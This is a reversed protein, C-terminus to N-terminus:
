WEIFKYFSFLRVKWTNTASASYTITCSEWSGSASFSTYSALKTNTGSSSVKRLYIGKPVTSYVDLAVIIGAGCTTSDEASPLSSTGFFAYISDAVASSGIKFEFSLQFGGGGSTASLINQWAYVVNATSTYSSSALHMETSSGSGSSSIYYSGALHSQKMVTSWTSTTIGSTSLTPQSSPQGTPAGTPRYPISTMAVQRVPFGGKQLILYFRCLSPFVVILSSFLFRM